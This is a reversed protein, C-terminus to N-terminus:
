RNPVKEGSSKKEDDDSPEILTPQFGNSKSLFGYPEGQLEKFKERQKETLVELIQEEIAAKDPKRALISVLPQESNESSQVRRKQLEAHYAELIEFIGEVQDENLELLEIVEEDILSKVGRMQLSLGLLRLRQQETLVQKIQQHKQQIFAQSEFQLKRMEAMQQDRPLDRVDKSKLQVYLRMKKVQDGIAKLQAESLDLERQIQPVGLLNMESGMGVRVQNRMRRRREERIEAPTKSTSESEASDPKEARLPKPDSETQGSAVKPQQDDAVLGSAQLLLGHLLFVLGVLKLRDFTDRLQTM